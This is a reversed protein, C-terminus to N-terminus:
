SILLPYHNGDPYAPTFQKQLSFNSKKEYFVLEKELTVKNETIM